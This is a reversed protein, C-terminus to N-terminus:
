RSLVKETFTSSEEGNASAVQGYALWVRFAGRQVILQHNMTDSTVVGRVLVSGGQVKDMVHVDVHVDVDVHVHLQVWRVM